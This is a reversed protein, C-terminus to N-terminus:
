LYVKKIDDIYGIEVYVSEKFLAVMEQFTQQKCMTMIEKLKFCLSLLMKQVVQVFDVMSMISIWTNVMSMKKMVLIYM